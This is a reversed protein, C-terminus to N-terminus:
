GEVDAAAQDHSSSQIDLTVEQPAPGLEVAVDASEAWGNAVFYAAVGDPVEHDTGDEFRDTGHLFTTTATIRAM